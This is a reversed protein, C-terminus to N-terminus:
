CAGAQDWSKQLPLHLGIALDHQPAAASVTKRFLALDVVAADKGQSVVGFDVRAEREANASREIRVLQILAAM